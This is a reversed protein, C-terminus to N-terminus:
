PTEKGLRRRQTDVRGHVLNGQVTYVQPVPRLTRDHYYSVIVMKYSTGSATIANLSTRFSTAANNLATVFAGAWLRSSTVDAIVGFPFYSRPHGGRYRVNIQWSVVAATANPMATGARTGAYAVTVTSQAAAQNTLDALVISNLSWSTNMLPTFNTNWANGVATGVTTLDAVTPAGGTYQLHLVNNFNVGGQNGKLTVLVVQPVAPLAPM